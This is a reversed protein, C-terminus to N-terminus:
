GSLNKIPITKTYINLFMLQIFIKKPDCIEMIKINRNRIFAKVYELRKQFNEHTKKLPNKTNRGVM